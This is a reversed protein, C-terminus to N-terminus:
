LLPKSVPQKRRRQLYYVYWFGVLVKAIIMMGQMRAHRCTIGYRRVVISKRGRMIGRGRKRGMRRAVMRKM